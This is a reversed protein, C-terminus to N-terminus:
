QLLYASMQYWLEVERLDRSPMKKLPFLGGHGDADYRRWIVIDLIQDVQQLQVDTILFADNCKQLGINTMLHWFWGRPQGDAEFALRRSLGILMEFMSCPLDLWEQDVHTRTEEVFEYRLARGDEVRNDDNPIYGVFEKTYLLRFLSWFTRSPDKHRVSAVQSYLWRLYADDPLEPTM